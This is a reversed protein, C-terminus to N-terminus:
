AISNRGAAGNFHRAADIAMRRTCWSAYAGGFLLGLWRAPAKQPLDYDIRVCLRTVKGEPELRFGLRYQAIVALRADVTQWAKRAPPEREVVVEELRLKVGLMRGSM